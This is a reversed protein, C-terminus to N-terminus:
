PTVKLSDFLTQAVAADLQAGVVTAQYVRSGFAFVAVEQVVDRGDPLSGAIRWRRSAPHPTMGGVAAAEDRVIRGRVNARAAAGLEALAAGVRQPDGLDASALAFTSGGASCAYLQLEVETGALLLRRAMADPRCPLALQVRLGAPRVDRWDAAPSCAGALALLSLAPWRRLAAARARHGRPAAASL